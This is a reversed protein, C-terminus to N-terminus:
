PPPARDPIPNGVIVKGICVVAGGELETVSVEPGAGSAAVVVVNLGKRLQVPVTPGEGYAVRAPTDRSASYTIEIKWSWEPPASPMVLAVGGSPDAPRSCVLGGPPTAAPGDVKGPHLRGQDDAVLFRPSWEGFVPADDGYVTLVNSLMRAPGFTAQMILQPLPQDFMFVPKPRSGDSLGAEVNAFYRPAPNTEWTKMFQESSVLGGVTVLAMVTAGSALVWGRHGASWVRVGYVARLRLYTLWQGVLSRQRRPVDDDPDPEPWAEHGEAEDAEAGEAGEDAEAERVHRMASDLGDRLPILALALCVAGFLAADTLYRHDRGIFPGVFGLRARAVLGVSIALFAALLVWARWAGRVLVCSGAVVAITLLWSTWELWAPASPWSGLSSQPAAFWELPGGVLSPLYTRLIMNDALEVYDSAPSPEGTDIRAEALYLWLYSGSLVLHAAWFVLYRRFARWPRLWLPGPAFYLVATLALVVPIVLAKEFAFLGLAVAGLSGALDRANPREAYGAFFYIALALALTTPLWQMAAAWWVTATLTLTTSCFMTFPVLIAPRRGFLRVLAALLVLDTAVVLLLLLAGVPAWSMAAVRDSLWAVVWSAPVLHGNYNSVLLPGLPQDAATALLNVDDQWFWSRSLRWWTLLGHVAVIAVGIPVARLNASVVVDSGGSGSLRIALPTGQARTQSLGSGGAGISPSGSAAGPADGSPVRLM